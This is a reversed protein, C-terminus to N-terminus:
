LMFYPTKYHNRHNKVPFTSAGTNKVNVSVKEEESIAAFTYKKLYFNNFIVRPGGQSPKPLLPKPHPSDIYLCVSELSPAKGGPGLHLSRGGM